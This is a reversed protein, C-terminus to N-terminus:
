ESDTDFEFISGRADVSAQGAMPLLRTKVKTSSLDQAEGIIKSWKRDTLTAVSPIYAATETGWNSESFKDEDKKAPDVGLTSSGTNWYNISREASVIAIVLAGQPYEDVQLEACLGSTMKLHASLGAIIFSSRFIGSYENPNDSSRDKWTFPLNKGLLFAAEAARDEQSDSFDLFYQSVAAHVTHAIKGRWEYWRQTALAYIPGESDITQPSDDFVINWIEQMDGVLSLDSTNWPNKTTGAFDRWAPIFFEKWRKLTKEPLDAHTYKDRPEKKASRTQASLMQYTAEVKVTPTGRTVKATNQHKSASISPATERVDDDILGGYRLAFRPDTDDKQQRSTQTVVREKGTTLDIFPLATSPAALRSGIPSPKAKKPAPILNELNLKHKNSRSANVFMDGTKPVMKRNAEITKRLDRAKERRTIKASSVLLTAATAPKPGDEIVDEDNHGDDEPEAHKAGHATLSMPDVITNTIKAIIPGPAPHAATEVRQAEDVAMDDELNALKQIAEQSEANNTECMAKVNGPARKRKRGPTPSLDVLGPHQDRNSRRTVRGGTEDPM